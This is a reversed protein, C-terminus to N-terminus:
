AQSLVLQLTSIYYHYVIIARTTKMRRSCTMEILNILKRQSLQTLTGNTHRRDEDEKCLRKYTM